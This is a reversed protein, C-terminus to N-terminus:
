RKELPYLQYETQMKQGTRKLFFRMTFLLGKEDFERIKAILKKSTVDWSVKAPKRNVESLIMKLAPIKKLLKNGDEDIEQLQITTQAISELCIMYEKDTEPKFYDKTGVDFVSWDIKTQELSKNIENEM